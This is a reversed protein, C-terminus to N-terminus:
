DTTRVYGAGILAIAIADPEEWPNTLEKKRSALEPFVSIVSDRITPKTAKHNGTLQKKVTIASLEKWPVEWIDALTQSTIVMGLGLVRQVADGGTVPLLESYIEDPDFRVVLDYFIKIWSAQVFRRYENYKMSGRELTVVGSKALSFGGDSVTVVAWGTRLAGPDFGLVTRPKQLDRQQAIDTKM